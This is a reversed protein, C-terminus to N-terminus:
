EQDEDNGDYQQLVSDPLRVLASGESAAWLLRMHKLDAAEASASLVLWQRLEIASDIRVHEVAYYYLLVEIPLLGLNGVVPPRQRLPIKQDYSERGTSLNAAAGFSLGPDRARRSAIMRHCANAVFVQRYMESAKALGYRESIQQDTNRGVRLAHRQRFMDYTTRTTAAVEVIEKPSAVCWM